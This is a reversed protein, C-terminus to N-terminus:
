SRSIVLATRDAFAHYQDFTVYGDTIEVQQHWLRVAGDDATLLAIESRAPVWNQRPACAPNRTEFVFQRGSALVAAVALFAQLIDDDALLCQFAHGTLYILHYREDSHFSQLTGHQWHV